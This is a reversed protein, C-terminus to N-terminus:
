QGYAARNGLALKYSRSGTFSHGTETTKAIITSSITFVILSCFLLNGKFKVMKTEKIRFFRTVCCRKEFFKFRM